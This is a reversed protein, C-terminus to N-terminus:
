EWLSCPQMNIQNIRKKVVHPWHLYRYYTAPLICTLFFSMKLEHLEIYKHSHQVLTYCITNWVYYNRVVTRLKHWFFKAIPITDAMGCRTSVMGFAITFNFPEDLREFIIHILLLAWFSLRSNHLKKQEVIPNMYSCVVVVGDFNIIFLCNFHRRTKNWGSLNWEFYDFSVVVIWCFCKQGPFLTQIRVNAFSSGLHFWQSLSTPGTDNLYITTILFSMHIVADTWFDNLTWIFNNNSDSIM